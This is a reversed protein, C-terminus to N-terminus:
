DDEEDCIVSIDKHRASYIALASRIPDDCLHGADRLHEVILEIKEYEFDIIEKSSRTLEM